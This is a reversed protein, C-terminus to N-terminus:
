LAFATVGPLQGLRDLHERLTEVLGLGLLTAPELADVIRRVEASASRLQGAIQALDTTLSAPVPEDTWQGRRLGDVALGTGVLLPGLRDHLDRRLRERELAAARVVRGYAVRLDERLRVTHAAAAIQHSIETLLATDARSYPDGATRPAVRLTGLLEAQHVLPFDTAGARGTGASAIECTDGDSCIWPSGPAPGARHVQRRRRGRSQGM